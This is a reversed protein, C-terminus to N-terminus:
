GRLRTVGVTTNNKEGGISYSVEWRHCALFAVCDDTVDVGIDFGKIGDDGIGACLANIFKDTETIDDAVIGGRARANPTDALEPALDDLTVVVVVAGVGSDVEVVELGIGGADNLPGAAVDGLFLGTPEMLEGVGSCKHAEHNDVGREVAGFVETVGKIGKVGRVGEIELTGSDAEVAVGVDGADEVSGGAAIAIGNDAESRGTSKELVAVVENIDAGDSLRAIAVRLGAVEDEGGLSQGFEGNLEAANGVIDLGGDTSDFLGSEGVTENGAEVFPKLHCSM